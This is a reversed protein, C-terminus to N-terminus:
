IDLHWAHEFPLTGRRSAFNQSWYFIQEWWQSFWYSYTCMANLCHCFRHTWMRSAFPPFHNQLSCKDKMCHHHYNSIYEIMIWCRCHCSFGTSKKSAIIVVIILFVQVRRQHLSSLLASDTLLTLPSLFYLFHVFTCMTEWEIFGSFLFKQM